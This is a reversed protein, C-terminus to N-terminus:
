TKQWALTGGTLKRALYATIIWHRAQESVVVVVIHKGGKIAEFRKSFLLAEDMRTSQRIQDPDALTEEVQPLYEPLLDPHTTAIHREREETLEVGGELYPCSFERM